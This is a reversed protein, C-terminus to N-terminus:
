GKAKAKRVILLIVILAVLGGLILIEPLGLKDFLGLTPVNM